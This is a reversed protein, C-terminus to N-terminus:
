GYTHLEAFGSSLVSTEDGGFTKMENMARRWQGITQLLSEWEIEDFRRATCRSVLVEEKLQDIKAEVLRKGIAKVLIGEVDEKPVSLAASIEEFTLKSKKHIIEILAMLEIKTLAKDKALGIQELAKSGHGSACMESFEDVKGALFLVLLQYVDKLADNDKLAQIVPNDLLDFSFLEESSMFETVVAVAVEAGENATCEDYTELARIKLKYIEKTASKPKRTCATLADACALYLKRAEAKNLCLTSVWSEINARIVGLMIDALGSQKSFDLTTLLTHLKANIDQVTNYLNILAQMRREPRVDPASSFASALRESAARCGDAEIRPVLHCIINTLGEM